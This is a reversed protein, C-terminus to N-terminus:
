KWRGGNMPAMKVMVDWGGEKGEVKGGQGRWEAGAGWNRGM